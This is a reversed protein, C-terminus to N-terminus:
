GRGVEDFEDGVLEPHDVVAGDRGIFAVEVFVADEEGIAGAGGRLGVGGVASGVAPSRASARAAVAGRRLLHLVGFGADGFERGFAGEEFLGEGLGGDVGRGQLASTTAVGALSVAM